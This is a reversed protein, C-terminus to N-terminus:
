NDKNVLPRRCLPCSNDHNSWILICRVCFLHGCVTYVRNSNKALVDYCVGCNSSHTHAADTADTADCNDNNDCVFGPKDQSYQPHNQSSLSMRITAYAYNAANVRDQPVPSISFDLRRRISNLDRRYRYGAPSVPVSRPSVSVSRPSVSELSELSNTTDISDISSLITSQNELMNPSNYSADVDSYGVSVSYVM